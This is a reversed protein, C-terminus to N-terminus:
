TGVRRRRLRVVIMEAIAIVVVVVMVRTSLALPSLHAPNWAIGAVAVGGIRFTWSWVRLVAYRYCFTGILYLPRKRIRARQNPELQRILNMPM